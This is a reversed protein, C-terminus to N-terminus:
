ALRRELNLVLLRRADRLPQPSNLANIRQYTDRLSRDPIDRKM